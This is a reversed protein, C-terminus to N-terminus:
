APAILGPLIKDLQQKLKLLLDDAGNYHTRFHGLDKLKGQFQEKSTLDAASVNNLDVSEDNFYTYILPRGTDKERNRAPGRGAYRDGRQQWRRWRLCAVRRPDRALLGAAPLIAHM